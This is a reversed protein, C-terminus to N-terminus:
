FLSLSRSHLAEEVERRVGDPNLVVDDWCFPLILWGALSLRRMRASDRKLAENGLHWRISQCEIGVKVEPFAFDLFHAQGSAAVPFDPAPMWGRISKIVRLTRTEFESRVAEDRYDRGRLMKRLLASGSRGSAGSGELEQSLRDLTTLRQRLASDMARGVRTPVWTACLDLLTREVRTVRVGQKRLSLPRDGVGLRHCRVGECRRGGRVYLEARAPVTEDIRHIWAASGHSVISEDGGWLQAAFLKGIPTVGVNPLLFVEPLYRQWGRAAVRNRIQSGSLGVALCQSRSVFGHQSRAIKEVRRDANMVAHCCVSRNAPTICTVKKEVLLAYIAERTSLNM